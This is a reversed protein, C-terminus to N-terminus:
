KKLNRKEELQKLYQIIQRRTRDTHIIADKPRMDMIKKAYEKKPNFEISKEQGMRMASLAFDYFNKEFEDEYSYANNAERCSAGNDLSNNKMEGIANEVYWFMFDDKLIKSIILESYGQEYAIFAKEAMTELLVVRFSDKTIPEYRKCGTNLEANQHSSICGFVLFLVSITILVKTM